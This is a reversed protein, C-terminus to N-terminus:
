VSVCARSMSAVSASLMCRSCQVRRIRPVYEFRRALLKAGRFDEGLQELEDVVCRTTLLQIPTGLYRCPGTERALSMWVHKTRAAMTCVELSSVTRRGRLPTKSSPRDCWSRARSACFVSCFLLAISNSHPRVSSISRGSLDQLQAGQLQSSRLCICRDSAHTPVRSLIISTSLQPNATPQPVFPIPLSWCSRLYSSTLSFYCFFPSSRHTV